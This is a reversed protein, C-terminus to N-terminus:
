SLAKFYADFAEKLKGALAEIEEDFLGVTGNLDDFCFSVM